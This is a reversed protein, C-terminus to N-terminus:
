TKDIPRAQHKAYWFGLVLLMGSLYGSAMTLHLVGCARLAGFWHFHLLVLITAM